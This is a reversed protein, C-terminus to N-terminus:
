GGACLNLFEELVDGPLCTALNESFRKHFFRDFVLIVYLFGSYFTIHFIPFLIIKIFNVNM